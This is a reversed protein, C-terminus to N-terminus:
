EMQIYLGLPGAHLPATQNQFFSFINCLAPTTRLVVGANHM